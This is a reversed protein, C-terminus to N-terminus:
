ERNKIRNYSLLILWLALPCTDGPLSDALGTLVSLNQKYGVSRLVVLLGATM